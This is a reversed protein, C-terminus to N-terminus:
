AINCCAFAFLICPKLDYYSVKGILKVGIVKPLQLTIPHGFMVAEAQLTCVTWGLVGLGNIMTTHTDTGVCSDPFLVDEENVAVIRALYELNVQHMVGTGPPIVTINDFSSDVWKLFQFRECNKEMESHRNKQLTESWYSLRQHFPCVEDQIPLGPNDFPVLNEQPQQPQSFQQAIAVM